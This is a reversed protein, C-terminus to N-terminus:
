FPAMKVHFFLSSLDARVGVLGLCKAWLRLEAGRASEGETKEGTEGRVLSAEETSNVVLYRRSSKPHPPLPNRKSVIRRRKGITEM